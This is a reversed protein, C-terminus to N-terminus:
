FLTSKKGCFFVIGFPAYSERDYSRWYPLRMSYLLWFGASLIPIM